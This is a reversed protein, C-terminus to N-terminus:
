QYSPWRELVALILDLEALFWAYIITKRGFPLHNTACQGGPM